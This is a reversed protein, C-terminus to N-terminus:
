NRNHDVIAYVCVNYRSLCQVQVFMSGPCVNFRSLCQVQVFMTGPCVNIQVFMTGPCCQVQVFMTGPCVNPIVFVLYEKFSSGANFLQIFLQVWLFQVKYFGLTVYQASSSYPGINKWNPNTKLYWLFDYIPQYLM